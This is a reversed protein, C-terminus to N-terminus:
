RCTSHAEEATLPGALLSFHFKFSIRLEREVMVKLFRPIRAQRLTVAWATDSVSGLIESKPGQVLQVLLHPQSRFHDLM